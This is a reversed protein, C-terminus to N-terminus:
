HGRTQGMAHRLRQSREHPPSRDLTLQVVLQPEVVFLHGLVFRHPTRRPVLRLL